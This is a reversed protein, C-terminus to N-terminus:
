EGEIEEVVNVGQDNIRQLGVNIDDTKLVTISDPSVYQLILMVKFTNDSYKISKDYVIIQNFQEEIGFNSIREKYFMANVSLILIIILLVVTIIKDKM